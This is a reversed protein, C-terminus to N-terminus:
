IIKKLREREHWFVNHNKTTNDLQELYDVLKARNFGPATDNIIAIKNKINNKFASKGIVEFTINAKGISGIFYEPTSGTVYNFLTLQDNKTAVIASFTIGKHKQDISKRFHIKRKDSKPILSTLFTNAQKNFMESEEKEKVDIFQIKSSSSIASIFSALDFILNPILEKKSTKKYYYDIQSANTTKISFFNEYYSFLRAFSEDKFDLDTEYTGDCLWGGDSVIFEKNKVTLFVSVFKSSTTYPTIIELTQGREAFTWLSCFDKKITKFIELLEKM